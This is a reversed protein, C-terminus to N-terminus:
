RASALAAPTAHSEVWTVLQDLVRSSAVSLAAAAAASDAQTVPATASFSQRAILKRTARDIMEAGVEVRATGPSSAADHFFDNVSLNLQLEGAVGRGALAVSTFARRAALRDVLLQSLRTSPRESWTAFQYAARQNPARSYALSFSDDVAPSPQPAVVLERGTSRAAPQPAANGDLIRFQAQQATDKGIDVSICGATLLALGAFVLPLVRRPPLTM